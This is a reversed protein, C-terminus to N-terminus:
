PPKEKPQNLPLLSSGLIKEDISLYWEIPRIYIYRVDYDSDQSPFGWARSGSECAYVIRINETAEIEALRSCILQQM